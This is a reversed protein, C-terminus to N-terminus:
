FGRRERDSKPSFGGAYLRRWAHALWAIALVLVVVSLVTSEGPDIADLAVFFLYLVVLAGILAWVAAAMTSMRRRRHDEERRGIAREGQRREEIVEGTPLEVPEEVISGREDEM